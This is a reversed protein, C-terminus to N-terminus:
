TNRHMEAPSTDGSVTSMLLMPVLQEVKEQKLLNFINAKTQLFRAKYLNDIELFYVIKEGSDGSIANWICQMVCSPFTFSCLRADRIRFALYHLYTLFFELVFKLIEASSTDSIGQKVHQNSHLIFEIAKLEKHNVKVITEHFPDDLSEFFLLNNM